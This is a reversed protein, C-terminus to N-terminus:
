IEEEEDDDSDIAFGIVQTTEKDKNLGVTDEIEKKLKAIKLGNEM